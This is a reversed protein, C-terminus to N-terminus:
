WSALIWELVGVANGERVRKDAEYLVLFRHMIQEWSLGKAQFAIKRLHHPPIGTRDLVNRTPLRRGVLLFLHAVHGLRYVAAGIFQRIDRVDAKLVDTIRGELLADVADCDVAKPPIIEKVTRETIEKFLRLKECENLVDDVDFCRDVVMEAVSEGVELVREVYLVLRDPSLKTCDIHATQKNTPIYRPEKRAPRVANATVVLIVDRPEKEAAALWSFIFDRDEIEQVDEILVIRKTMSIQNLASDIDAVKSKGDFRFLEYSGLVFLGSLVESLVRAVLGREAGSVAFCRAKNLEKSKKAQWTLYNM